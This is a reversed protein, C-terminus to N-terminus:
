RRDHLPDPRWEYVVMVDQSGDCITYHSDKVMYINHLHPNRALQPFWSPFIVVYRPRKKMLTAIPGLSLVEHNNLGLLDIVPRQSFFRIAGADNAAIIAEPETNDALWRGIKVQTQNIDECNDSFRHAYTMFKSSLTVLPLLCVVAIGLSQLRNRIGTSHFGRAAREFLSGLAIGLPLLLIPIVPQFYRNWYFPWSQQLANSWAIGVVFLLPYGLVLGYTLKQSLSGGRAHILILRAGFVFLLLGSGLFFWPLDFIMPGCIIKLNALFLDVGQGPYKAYYTNPLPRGTASLCFGIWVAVAISVPMFMAAGDTVWSKRRHLIAFCIPLALVVIIANEPRTLPAAALALGIAIPSAELMALLACLVTSSALLVEMGSLKAFCLSPDLAVMLGACLAGLSRGSIRHAVEYVIGSCIWAVTVGIFKVALVLNGLFVPKLWFALSLLIVWLPSTFGAEQEGPNYAFGNFESVSRAYVLHIWSDDLPFGTTAAATGSSRDFLFVSATLLQVCGLLLWAQKGRIM